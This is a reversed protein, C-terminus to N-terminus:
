RRGFAQHREISPIRHLPCSPFKGIVGQKSDDWLSTEHLWKLKAGISHVFYCLYIQLTKELNKGVKSPEEKLCLICRYCEHRPYPPMEEGNLAKMTSKWIVLILEVCVGKGSDLDNKVKIRVIEGKVTEDGLDLAMPSQKNITDRCRGKEPLDLKWFIM